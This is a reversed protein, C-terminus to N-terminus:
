LRNISEELIKIRPSKEKKKLKTFFKEAKEKKNLIIYLNTFDFLLDSTEGFEEVAKMLSIESRAYDGKQVAIESILRYIKELPKIDLAKVLLGDADNLLGAALSNEAKDILLSVDSPNLKLAKEYWQCAEDNEGDAFLANAFIHYAKARNREAALDASGEEINFLPMCEKLKGQLRKIETYNELVAIEDPLLKRAQLVAEEAGAFDNLSILQMAHLNHTWGNSPDLKLAKELFVSCDGGHLFLAEALRFQYLAYEPELKCAKKLAKVAEEHESKKQLLLGYLYWVASDKTGGKCLRKFNELAAETNELAYYFKGNLAWVREDEPALRELSNIVIGLDNYQEQALFINAAKIYTEVAENNKGADRYENAENLRFLGQEPNLEAARAYFEAAKEHEGGAHMYHGKLNCLVPSIRFKEESINKLFAGLKEYNNTHYYLGAIEASLEASDEKLKLAKLFEGEAEDIMRQSFYIRGALLHDEYVPTRLEWAKKIEYIASAAQGMAYYTQALNIHADPSISNKDNASSDAAEVMLSDSNIYIGNLFFKVNSVAEWNQGAFAIKGASQIIDNSLKALWVGNILITISTDACILKIKFSANEIKAAPRTWGLMPIPTSNIVADIRVWGKDSILIAYFAKEAIYRFLFGAAFSGAESEKAGDSEALGKNELSPITVDAELIFNKYRFKPNVSWAYIHKRTLELSFFSTGNENKGFATKYGDGSEEKFRAETQVSFDTKWVEEKIEEPDFEVKNKKLKRNKLKHKFYEYYLWIKSM